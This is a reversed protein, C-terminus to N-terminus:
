KKIAEFFLDLAPEIKEPEIGGFGLIVDNKSNKNVSYDQIPQVFIRNEKMKKKFDRCDWCDDDLRIVVHLGADAGSIEIGKRKKLCKLMINRKKKYHTNMRNIHKEFAGSSLFKELTYQQLLSVESFPMNLSDKKEILSDPLVLYSVGLFSGISQSFSGSLIVKDNMDLSKLAPIPNGSYKFDGNYDDEVIYRGSKQNAWGLIRQRRRLGTIIGTPFQHNPTVIAINADTVELDKVSFGYKDIPIAIIKKSSNAFIDLTKSYGPDEMAFYCNDILNMLLFLNEIYGSTIIVNKAPTIVGRRHALYKAIQDRLSWLGDKASKVPHTAITEMAENVCKKFISTPIKSKDISAYSFDYKIRDEYAFNESCLSDKICLTSKKVATEKHNKGFQETEYNYRFDEFLFKDVFFGSRQKSVIYGEDLLQNYASKVTNLSVGLHQSLVRQPPLREGSKINKQRIENVFCNYIQTYLSEYNNFHITIM